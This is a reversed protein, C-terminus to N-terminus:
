RFVTMNSDFIEERKFYYEDPVLEQAFTKVAIILNEPNLSPNQGALVASLKVCGNDPSFSLYKIMPAIDTDTVGKKTKKPIVINERSFLENLKEAVAKTDGKEYLFSGSFKIWVIDKFKREPEYASVMEIGVPLMKNLMSPLKDKEIDEILVCDMLECVSECCVSLPLAFTMHPHPNFGETHKIHIGARIFARQVTRMLDLHSIYKALGTKCFLFRCRNNM